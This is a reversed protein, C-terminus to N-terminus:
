ARKIKPVDIEERGRDAREDAIAAVLLEVWCMAANWSAETEDPPKETRLAAELDDHWRALKEDSARRIPGLEIRRHTEM